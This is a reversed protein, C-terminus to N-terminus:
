YNIKSPDAHELNDVSAKKIIVEGNDMTGPQLTITGAGSSGQVTKLLINGPMAGGAANLNIDGGVGSANTTSNINVDQANASEVITLSLAMLFLSLIEKM